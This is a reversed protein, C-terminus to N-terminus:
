IYLPTCINTYTLIKYLLGSCKCLLGFNNYIDQENTDNALIEGTPTLLDDSANNNINGLLGATEVDLLVQTVGVSISLDGATGVKATVEM